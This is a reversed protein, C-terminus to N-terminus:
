SSSNTAPTAAFVIEGQEYQRLTTQAAIANLQAESLDTFLPVRRLAAILDPATKAPPM